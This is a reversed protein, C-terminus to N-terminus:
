PGVRSAFLSDTLVWKGILVRCTRAYVKQFPHSCTNGAAEDSQPHIRELHPFYIRVM